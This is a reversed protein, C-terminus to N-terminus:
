PARGVILDLACGLPGSASTDSDSAKALKPSRLDTSMAPAEAAVAAPFQVGVLQGKGELLRAILTVPQLSRGLQDVSWAM